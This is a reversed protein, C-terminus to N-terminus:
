TELCRRPGVASWVEAQVFTSSIAHLETIQQYRCYDNQGRGETMFQRAKTVAIANPESPLTPLNPPHTPPHHTLPTGVVGSSTELCLECYSVFQGLVRPAAHVDVSSQCLAHCRSVNCVEIVYHLPNLYYAWLWGVALVPFSHVLVYRPSPSKAHSLSARGVESQSGIQPRGFITLSVTSAVSLNQVLPRLTKTWLIPPNKM